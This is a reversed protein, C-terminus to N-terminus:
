AVRSRWLPAGRRCAGTEQADSMPPLYGTLEGAVLGRSAM